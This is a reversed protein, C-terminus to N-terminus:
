PVNRCIRYNISIKFIITQFLSFICNIYLICYKIISFCNILLQNFFCFLFSIFFAFFQLIFNRLRRRLLVFSLVCLIILCVFTIIFVLWLSRLWLHLLWLHLLGLLWWLHLLWLHLLLRRTWWLLTITLPLLTTLPLLRITWLRRSLRTLFRCLMLSSLRSLLTFLILRSLFARWTSIHILRILLITYTLLGWLFLRTILLFLTFSFLRSVM